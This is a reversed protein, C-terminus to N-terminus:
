VVVNYTLAYDLYVVLWGALFLGESLEITVFYFCKQDENKKEKSYPLLM